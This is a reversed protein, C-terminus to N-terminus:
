NFIFQQRSCSMEVGSCVGVYEILAKNGSSRPIFRYTGASEGKGPGDCFSWSVSNPDKSNAIGCATVLSGLTFRVKGVNAEVVEFTVPNAKELFLREVWNSGRAENETCKWYQNLNVGCYLWQTVSGAYQTRMAAVFAEARARPSNEEEEAKQRKAASEAAAMKRKAGIAYVRDQAERADSEGPNSLMFWKLTREADDLQGTLEQAV